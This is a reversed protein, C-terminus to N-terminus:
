PEEIEGRLEEMLADEDIGDGDSDGSKKIHAEDDLSEPALDPDTVVDQVVDDHVDADLDVGTARNFDKDAQEHSTMVRCWAVAEPLPPAVSGYACACPSASACASASASMPRPALVRCPTRLFPLLSRFVRRCRRLADVALLFLSPASERRVGRATACRACVQNADGLLAGTYLDEIFSKQSTVFRDFESPQTYIFYAMALLVGVTAVRYLGQGPSSKAFTYTPAFTSKADDNLLNPFLWLDYGALWCVAFVLFRIALSGLMVVLVAMSVLSVGRRMWMPWVPFLCGAILVVVLLVSLAITKAMSGAYVWVYRMQSVKSQRYWNKRGEVSEVPYFYRRLLGATAVTTSVSASVSM